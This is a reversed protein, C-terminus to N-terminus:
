FIDSRISNGKQIDMEHKLYYTYRTLKFEDIAKELKHKFDLGKRNM